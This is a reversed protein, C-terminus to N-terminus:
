LSAVRRELERAIKAGQKEDFKIPEGFKLTVEGPLALVRRGRSKLEYLGVIKVPVVPVNLETALLGTGHLFPSMRGDETRKGEPFVLLNFGRDAAEGAHAFSRRFGSQKPLPFVNFFLVVAFYKVLGILRVFLNTGARAHRWDRLREGEMAIALRRAFRAPLASLILAHDIYTIHNSVFLVPSDGLRDLRERGEVRLQSLVRVLPLVVLYRLALRAWTAPFRLAWRPYPYRARMEDRARTAGDRASTEVGAVHSSRNSALLQDHDEHEGLDIVNEDVRNRTADDRMAVCASERLLREVDGLTTAATFAAEDLEIQYREELAGLLEVRSLSDLKLDTTLNAAPSLRVSGVHGGVRAVIEALSEFSPAPSSRSTAVSHVADRGDGQQEDVEINSADQREGFRLKVVRAVERRLVKQTPTRPLDTEDWVLWRRIQQHRALQENARTIIAAADASADRLVLVAVPEEGRAGAYAVVACARVARQQNLVAEIDEPYINLGAATVIVEKKRGRFYLKGRADIEAVDGTQLWGDSDGAPQLHGESWYGPSVNAGRVMIEGGEGLKIEQGPLAKGISGRGRKFPHNVAVLSATETMGYGQVVAFGLRHWFDETGEELTAGGVVFAWFKFGFLRHVGRFEWWRRAAGWVRAREIKRRLEVGQARAEADREIKERLTDLLRPVAVVVSIRERKVTEVIESPKLSEQFFLEGGVLQPVFIGMFQGFVHSLPVLNLFRVPRVLREWKLYKKAEREIPALNAVLNRHTLVVGKPEATTGSTYIIEVIDDATVDVTEYAEGSHHATLECLSSLQVHPVSSVIECAEVHGVLWLKANVQSQVRAAFDPASAVDLPVVIAGRLLCGFFAAVWEPSNEAWVIVRDGKEIGRAKLERAARYSEEALRAYSWRVIRVGRRHALATADGRAACDALFSLITTREM